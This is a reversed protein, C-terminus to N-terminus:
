EQDLKKGSKSILPSTTFSLSPEQVTPHDEPVESDEPLQNNEPSIHDNDNASASVHKMVTGTQHWWQDTSDYFKCEHHGEGSVSNAMKDVKYQKFLTNFKKKCAEVSRNLGHILALMRAHLKVWVDVSACSHLNMLIWVVIGNKLIQLESGGLLVLFMWIDYAVCSEIIPL